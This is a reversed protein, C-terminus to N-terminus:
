LTSMPKKEKTEWGGVNQYKKIWKRHYKKTTKFFCSNGQNKKTKIKTLNLKESPIKNKSQISQNWSEVNSKKPTSTRFQVRAL